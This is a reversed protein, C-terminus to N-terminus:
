YAPVNRHFVTSNPEEDPRRWLMALFLRCAVAAYISTNSYEVPQFFKLFYDSVNVHHVRLYGIPWEGIINPWGLLINFFDLINLIFPIRTKHNQFPLKNLSSSYLIFYWQFLSMLFTVLIYM